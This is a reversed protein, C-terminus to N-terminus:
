IFSINKYSWELARKAKKIAKHRIDSLDKIKPFDREYTPNIWTLNYVNHWEGGSFLMGPSVGTIFYGVGILAKSSAHNPFAVYSDIARLGLVYHAYYCRARHCASAIGNGWLTEDYISCGSEGRGNRINTISTTGIPRGIPDAEDKSICIAWVISNEEEASQKLWEAEQSVTWAHWNGLFRSIEFRSFGRSIISVEDEQYPRLIISVEEGDKLTHQFRMPFGFAM